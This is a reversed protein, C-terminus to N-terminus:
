PDPVRNLLGEERHSHPRPGCTQETSRQVVCLEKKAQGIKPNIGSMRIKNKYKLAM